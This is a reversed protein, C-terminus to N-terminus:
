RAFNEVKHLVSEQLKYFKCIEKLKEITVSLALSSLLLVAFIALPHKFGYIFNHFFYALIFTHTLYMNTSHKGVFSLFSLQVKKWRCLSVVALCTFLAIFPDVTNGYFYLSLVNNRAYFCFSALCFSIPVVCQIPIKNLITNISKKRIAIFSGIAFTCAYTSLGAALNELPATMRYPNFFLIFLVLISVVNSRMAWFIIPFLLYSVIILRNFWWTANYSSLEQLGLFDKFLCLYIDADSGYATHLTRGFIFVGIPVFIVFIFWYSLFFKILRKCLFQITKVFSEKTSHGQIKEYQISLGYGSLFLFIAVCTKGTLAAKFFFHGYEPNRYFLHHILMACIAISKVINTEAITLAYDIKNAEM